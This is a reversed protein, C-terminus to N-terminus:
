VNYNNLNKKASEKTSYEGSIYEINNYIYHISWYSKGNSLTHKQVWKRTKEKWEKTYKTGDIKKGALIVISGVILFIVGLSISEPTGIKGSPGGIFCIFSGFILLGGIVFLIIQIILVIFKLIKMMNGWCNINM